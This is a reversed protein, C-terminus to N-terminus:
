RYSLFFCKLLLPDLALSRVGPFLDADFFRPPDSPPSLVLSAHFFDIPSSLISSLIILAQPPNGGPYSGARSALSQHRTSPPEPVPRAFRPDRHCILAM